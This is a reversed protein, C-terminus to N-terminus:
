AVNVTTTRTIVTTTVTGFMRYKLFADYGYACMAVFGFFAAATFAATGKSAALSSTLMLSLTAILCFYFEITIWPIRNFVYVAQILYLVLLICTFWFCTMAITSFFQGTGSNSFDSVQICIFGLINLILCLVKLQGPVTNLYYSNYRIGVPESTPQTPTQQTATPTSM